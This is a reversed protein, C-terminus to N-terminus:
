VDAAPPAGLCLWVIRRQPSPAKEAGWRAHLPHWPFILSLCLLWFPTEKELSLTGKEWRTSLWRTGLFSSPAHRWPSPAKKAGWRAHLRRWPFILSLCLLRIPTKKQKPSPARREACAWDGPALSLHPCKRTLVGHACLCLLWFSLQARGGLINGNKM